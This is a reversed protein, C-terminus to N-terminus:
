FCKPACVGSAGATACYTTNANDSGACLADEFGPTCSAGFNKAQQCTTYAAADSNDAICTGQGALVSRCVKSTNNCAAGDAVLPV